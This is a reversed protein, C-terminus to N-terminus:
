AGFKLTVGCDSKANTEIAKAASQFGASQLKELKTALAQLKTIDVGSPISGSAMAAIVDSLKVGSQQLATVLTDVADSILKWDPAVSSPAKSALDKIESQFGALEADTPISGGSFSDIKTKAQKILTCYASGADGGANTGAKSSGGCGGLLTAGLLAGAALIATTRM